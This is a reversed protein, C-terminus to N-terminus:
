GCLPVDLVHLGGLGVTPTTWVELTGPRAAARGAAAAASAPVEVEITTSDGPDLEVTVAVRQRGHLGATDGGLPAGDTALRPTSGARPGYASLIYTMRGRDPSPPGAVYNPLEAATADDLTNTLTMALTDTRGGGTCVSSKLDLAVDLHASLKGVVADDLFVGVVDTARDAGLTGALLTGTLLDQEAPQASWVMLRHEASIREVAPLLASPPADSTSLADFVAAAVVAFFRDAQEPSLVDYARRLLLDVVTEARVELRDTGVREAIRGPLDVTVPGTEALLYSLAVPDTALVGDVQVGHSLEWMQVAVRATTPFDPSLTVDQVYRGLRSTFVAEDQPDLAVLGARFPGVDGSSAQTGVTLRGGDVELEMLAGPIGGGARLEASTMGLLLYRRPGDLGLMPPLLTTAREAGALLGDLAGLQADLTVVPEVFASQLAAPDVEALEERSGALVQRAATVDPAAAAIPALDVTGDDARQTARAADATVALAPIVVDAVDDIVRSVASAAGVSEGVVPLFAAVRWLPGDTAERAEDTDEQLSRLAPDDVLLATADGSLDDLSARLSQEVLPIQTAARDLADRAVLADRVLLAACVAVVVALVLVVLPLRRL